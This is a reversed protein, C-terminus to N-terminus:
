GGLGQMNEEAAEIAALEEPTLEKKVKKSSTRSKSSSGTGMISELEQISQREFDDSLNREFRGAIFDELYKVKEEFLKLVEPDKIGYSNFEDVLGQLVGGRLSSIAAETKEQYAVFSKASAEIEKITEPDTARAKMFRIASLEMSRAQRENPSVKYCLDNLKGLVKLAAPNHKLKSEAVSMDDSIYDALGRSMTVGKIKKGEAIQVKNKLADVAHALEHSLTMTLETMTVKKSLNVNIRPNDSDFFTGIELANGNKDVTNFTVRVSRLGNAGMYQSIYEKCFDKLQKSEVLLGDSTFCSKNNKLENYADSVRNTELAEAQKESSLPAAAATPGDKFKESVFDWSKDMRSNYAEEGLEVFDIAEEAAKQLFEETFMGKLLDDIQKGDLGELMELAVFDAIPGLSTFKSAIEEGFYKEFYTELYAKVVKRAKTYKAYEEAERKAKNQADVSGNYERFLDIVTKNNDKGRINHNLLHASVSATIVAKLSEIPMYLIDHAKLNVPFNHLEGAGDGLVSSGINLPFSANDKINYSFTPTLRFRKGLGMGNFMKEIRKVIAKVYAVRVPVLKKVQVMEKYKDDDLDKFSNSTKEYEQAHKHSWHNALMEELKKEEEITIM